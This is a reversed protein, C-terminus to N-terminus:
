VSAIAPPASVVGRIRQSIVQTIGDGRMSVGYLADASEMTFKQHTIIILQSSERLESLLTVLRTLNVEDLAAEVEDMVYFPSPRARFISVLIAVATLSREGGSLLSLRKVKKGPPRANVEIGTTLMDGPDTLVLSGEGGPFLTQFVSVFERAVDDFASAFVEQIKLDVEGVVTMLDRRTDKLDTLQTSLFAHREELAAFEELALPNVKGLTVLDREASRLKREAATRDFAMPQPAYVQEGRDKAAQYEALEVASPPTLADPGFEAVLDDVTIAFETTAREVLQEIRIAQQARLVEERHVASTLKEWDATLEAVRQRTAAAAFEAATRASVAADRATSAARLTLTLVEGVAAARGVVQEAIAAAVARRTRAAEARARTDREARAARRLNDATGASAHAREQVTRQALRADIERQRAAATLQALRDRQTSDVVAPVDQDQVAALRSELDALATQQQGRSEEATARQRALREAEATAARATEALRGLQEEVASLQADSDNLAQVARDADRERLEADARAGSLTAEVRELGATVEALQAEAEDVAAQIELLSQQGAQGGAARHAGLLEGDLTVARLEPHTRVLEAAAALDAVIVLRGLAHTMAEALAAPATVADLAWTAGDPLPPRSDPDGVDGGILVGARGADAHRLWDLTAIASTLDVVAVADALPGLAAALAAEAGPRITLLESVPGLLGALQDHAQLLAGTGDRRALGLGLADVRARLSRQESVAARQAELLERMRDAARDAAERARQHTEDLGVEDDGLAAISATLGAFESRASAARDQASTLATSLRTIEDAGAILRSRAADVRGNLTALGERRDAIARTSALLAAEAQTLATERDTRDAVAVVLAVRAAEVAADKAAQEVDAARAAEELEEPDRGARAEDLPAALNRARESALDLTGRFRESLASLAFWTEQAEQLAPAAAASAAVSVEQEVGASALAAQVRDR